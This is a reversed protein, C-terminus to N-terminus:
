TDPQVLTKGTIHHQHGHYQDAQDTSKSQRAGSTQDQQQPTGTSTDTACHRHPNVSKCLHKSHISPNQFLSMEPVMSVLRGASRQRNLRTERADSHQKDRACVRQEDTCAETAQVLEQMTNAGLTTAGSAALKDCPTM